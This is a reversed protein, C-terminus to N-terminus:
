PEAPELASGCIACRTADHPMLATCLPCIGLERYRRRVIVLGILAVLGLTLTSSLVEGYVIVTNGISFNLYYPASFLDLLGLITGGRGSDSPDRGAHQALIDVGVDAVANALTVAAYGVGFALALELVRGHALSTLWARM